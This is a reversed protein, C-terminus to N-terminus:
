TSRQGTEIGNIRSRPNDAEEPRETRSNKGDLWASEIQLTRSNRNFGKNLFENPWEEIGM